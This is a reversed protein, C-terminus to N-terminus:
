PRGRWAAASAPTCRTPTCSPKRVPIEDDHTADRLDCVTYHHADFHFPRSARMIVRAGDATEFTVRRVDERGGNEAPPTFPFHMETVTTQYTGLRAAEKRDPYSEGPGRGFWEVKEFGEPLTWTFGLREVSDIGSLRFRSSLTMTGDGSM